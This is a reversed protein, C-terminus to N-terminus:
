LRAIQDARQPASIKQHLRIYDGRVPSTVSDAQCTLRLESERSHGYERALVLRAQKRLDERPEDPVPQRHDPARGTAPGSDRTVDEDPAYLVLNAILLGPAGDPREFRGGAILKEDKVM